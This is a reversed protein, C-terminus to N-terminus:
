VRDERHTRARLPRRRLLYCREAILPHKEIRRREQPGLANLSLAFQSCELFLLLNM